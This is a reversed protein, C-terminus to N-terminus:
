AAGSPTSGMAPFSLHVQPELRSFPLPLHLRSWDGLRLSRLPHFGLRAVPAGSRAQLWAVGPKETGAPGRPGDLAMIVRGGGQLHRLLHRLSEPRRSGSGAVTRVPTPDLLAHLLAADRSASVLALAPSRSFAVFVPLLDRHWCALILPGEPLPPPDGARVTRLWLRLLGAAARDRASFIGGPPGPPISAPRVPVTM